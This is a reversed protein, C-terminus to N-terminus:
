RALKLCAQAALSHCAMSHGTMAPQHSSAPFSLRHSSFAICAELLDLIASLSWESYYKLALNYSNAVLWDLERDDFSKPQQIMTVAAGRFSACVADVADSSPTVSLESIQLRITCRLLSPLHVDGFGGISCKVLVAQLARIAEPRNGSQQAELVCGYLLKPEQSSHKAIAEFCDAAMVHDKDRLAIKYALYQTLPEARATEPMQNLTVRATVTDGRALACSIMRRAIKASNLDGTNSLLPHMTLKSWSEAGAWDEAKTCADIHKWLLTQAAHTAKDSMQHSMRMNITVMLQNLAETSTASSMWLRTILATQIWEAKGHELLRLTLLDDLARCALDPSACDAVTRRERDFYLSM